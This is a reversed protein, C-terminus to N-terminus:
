NTLLSSVPQGNKYKITRSTHKGEGDVDIIHHQGRAVDDSVIQGQEYQDITEFHYNSIPRSSSVDTTIYELLYDGYFNDDYKEAEIHLQRYSPGKRGRRYISQNIDITVPGFIQSSDDSEGSIELSGLLVPQKVLSSATLTTIHSGQSPM